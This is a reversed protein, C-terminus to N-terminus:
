ELPVVIIRRRKKDVNRNCHGSGTFDEALFLEGPGFQRKSGDSVEFEGKGELTIIIQKRPATHWGPNYDGEIETFILGKAKILKSAHRGLGDSDVLPLSMDDFHSNQDPGTYLRAIKIDM